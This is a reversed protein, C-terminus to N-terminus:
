DWNGINSFYLEFKKCKPCYYPQNGLEFVPKREGINWSFVSGIPKSSPMQLSLDNYFIVNKHGKPCKPKIEIYNSIIFEHCENCVAPAACLTKFSTFGGGAAFDMSFGCSCKANILSGV